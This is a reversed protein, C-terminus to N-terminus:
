EHTCIDQLQFIEAFKRWWMYRSPAQETDDRNDRVVEM